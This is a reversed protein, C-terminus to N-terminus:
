FPLETFPRNGIAAGTKAFTSRYVQDNIGLYVSEARAILLLDLFTKLHPLTGAVGESHDVHLIRGEVAFVGDITQARELFTNSDTTVLVKKGPHRHKVEEIACLGRHIMAEREAETALMPWAVDDFDGFLRVFRFSISVYDTGERKWIAQLASQLAPAPRFLTNFNTGFRSRASHANTFVHVQRVKRATRGIRSLNDERGFGLCKVVVPTSDPGFDLGNGDFRWDPGNAPLLYDTLNFPHTFLIKFPLGHTACYDYVSVAGWLRDCLGGQNVMNNFVAVVAKEVHDRSSAKNYCSQRLQHELKHDRLRKAGKSLGFADDISRLLRNHRMLTLLSSLTM